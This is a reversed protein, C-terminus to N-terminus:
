VKVAVYEKVQEGELVREQESIFHDLLHLADEAPENHNLRQLQLSEIMTRLTSDLKMAQLYKKYRMLIWFELTNEIKQIWSAPLFASIFGMTHGGLYFMRAYWAPRIGRKRLLNHLFATHHAKRERLLRLNEEKIGFQRYWGLRMRERAHLDRIFYETRKKIDIGQIM